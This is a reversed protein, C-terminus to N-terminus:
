STAFARLSTAKLSSCRVLSYFPHAICSHTLHPYMYRSDRSTATAAATTAAATASVINAVLGLPNEISVSWSVSFSRGAAGQQSGLEVELDVCANIETPGDLGLVFTDPQAPATASCGFGAALASRGDATRLVDLLTIAGNVPLTAGAGFRVTLAQNNTWRHLCSLM